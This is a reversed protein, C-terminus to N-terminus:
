RASLPAPVTVTGAASTRAPAAISMKTSFM